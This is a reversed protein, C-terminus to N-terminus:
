VDIIIITNPSQVADVHGRKEEVVVALVRGAIGTSFLGSQATESIPTDLTEARHCAFPFSPAPM